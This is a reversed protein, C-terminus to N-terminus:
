GYPGGTENGSHPEEMLRSHPENGLKLLVLPTLDINKETKRYYLNTSRYLLLKNIFKGNDLELISNFKIPDSSHMHNIEPVDPKEGKILKYVDEKTAQFGYTSAQIIGNRDIWVQTGPATRPFLEGGYSFTKDGLVMPLTTGKIIPSNKFLPDLVERTEEPAQNILLVVLDDKFEHQIKQWKPFGAICGKCTRTWFDLIVAKGKFDSLKAMTTPYNYMGKFELDPVKDGIHLAKSKEQAITQLSLQIFVVTLFLKFSKM